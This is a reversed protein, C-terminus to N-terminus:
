GRSPRRSGLRRGGAGARRAGAGATMGRYDPRFDPNPTCQFGFGGDLYDQERARRMLDAVYDAHCTYPVSPGSTWGGNIAAAPCGTGVAFVDDWSYGARARAHRRGVCALAYADARDDHEGPPARLTHGDISALQDLTAFHHVIATGNLFAEAAADYLATKGLTSSLWGPKRDEGLLRQLHSHEALWGLVAHGHNNRECMLWANNYWTGIQHAYAALVQPPFKGALCAVEEGTDGDLVELASDDSTPKGEAPDIGIVYVHGQVRPAWARAM